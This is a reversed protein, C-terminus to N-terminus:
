LLLAAASPSLRVTHARRDFIPFVGDARGRPLQRPLVFPPRLNLNGRLPFPNDGRLGICVVGDVGRFLSSIGM